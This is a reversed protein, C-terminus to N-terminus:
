GSIWRDLIYDILYVIKSFDYDTCYNTHFSHILEKKPEINGQYQHLKENFATWRVFVDKNIVKHDLFCEISVAKGNINEYSIGQPGKCMFKNFDPHDPLSIVKLNQPLTINRIDKLVSLGATDNDLIVLINNSIDIKALGKIFNKLNGTGTFPYNEGMDIFNFFDSIDAHLLNISKRIIDTDSSGETVVLIKEKATLAPMIDEKLIWGNEIVDAVRWILNFEQNIKNESLIRLIIYPSLNELFTSAFDIESSFIKGLEYIENLVCDRVYEGLDFVGEYTESAMDIKSIDIRYVIDYFDKFDIQLDTSDLRNQYQLEKNFMDEINHLSYGLLDLRKKICGLNKSFGKKYEVINDAYYYPVDKFDTRQFLSSHDNYFNNKGWEIEMKEIGLTIMSGM